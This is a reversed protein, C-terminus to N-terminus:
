TFKMGGGAKKVSWEKDYVKSFNPATDDGDLVVRCTNEWLRVIVGRLRDGTQKFDPGPNTELLTVQVGETGDGAGDDTVMFDLGYLEFCNDMPSFVTYENEFAAFLEGTIGNIQERVEKVVRAGRVPGGRVSDPMDDLTKVFLAEDFDVDECSRATNTLHRYVSEPGISDMNYKHAALLALIGDYVYVKLAGVCLVYVRLHFKYGGTWLMPAEIYRQLVWERIDPVAELGDLVDDWDGCIAIDSGKNTYSPKLIWFWDDRSPDQVEEKSDNLCWDLRERLTSSCNMMSNMNGFSAKVGGFDMKMDDEHADWTELVVTYPLAHTICSGPHKSAYRKLQLSLQAKRSLGKRVLYSAAHHRGSMVPVWDIRDFDCLQVVKHKGKGKGKGAGDLAAEGIQKVWGTRRGLAASVIQNTYVDQVSWRHAVRSPTVSFVPSSDAM